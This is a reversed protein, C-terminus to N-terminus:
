QASVGSFRFIFNPDLAYFTQTLNEKTLCTDSTVFDGSFTIKQGEKMPVLTQFFPADQHILTNASIDSFANNWTQVVVTPAIEVNVWAYGDGNAGIDHITGVWNDVHNGPILACLASDRTAIVQSRQLDTSAASYSKEATAITQVFTAEAAPYTGYPSTAVPPSTPTPSASPTASASQVATPESASDRATKSANGLSGIFTISVVIAILFGVPGLVLGALSQGHPKGVVRLGLIGLVIAGIAPIWAAFSLGPIIAFFVTVLGCVM